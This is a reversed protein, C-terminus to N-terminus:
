PCPKREKAAAGPKPYPDRALACTLVMSFRVARHGAGTGFDYTFNGWRTFGLPAEILERKYPILVSALEAIPTSLPTLGSAPGILKSFVPALTHMTPATATAVDALASVAPGSREIERVRPLAGALAAIGPTLQRSATAVRALLADVRPLVAASSQEVGPLATITSRLDSARGATTALVAHAPPLANALSPTLAAAVTRADGITQGLSPRVARLVSTADTLLSPARVLVANLDTGRGVLGTGYGTMVQGLARRADADFGSIVDTLQVGGTARVLTGSHLPHAVRGPTLDVYMAGALGRPRIRASAGPGVKYAGLTVTAVGPAVSQVQGVREGGVRVEDGNHLLPAGAPLTIRVEYPSSWPLGNIAVTSLWGAVAVLALVALGLFLERRM